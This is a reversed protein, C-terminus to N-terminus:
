IGDKSANLCTSCRVIREPSVVAQQSYDFFSTLNSKRNLIWALNNWKHPKLRKIDRFSPLPLHRNKSQHGNDCKNCKRSSADVVDFPKFYCAKGKGCTMPIALLFLLALSGIKWRLKTKSFWSEQLMSQSTHNDTRALNCPVWSIKAKNKNTHVKIRAVLGYSCILCHNCHSLIFFLSIIEWNM